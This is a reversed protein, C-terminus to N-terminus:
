AERKRKKGVMFLASMSATLLGLATLAENAADGTQPLQAKGPTQSKDTTTSNGTAVAPTTPQTSVTAPKPDATYIVTFAKVHSTATLGDLAAVEETNPTFGKIVPSKVAEFGDVAPTWDGYTVVGTTLDVTGPRTFTLSATADPAAPTGDAYVYHIVETITRTLYDKGSQDPWKPGDTDDPDVPEGPLGPDSPTVTKTGHSLNVTFTQAKAGFTINDPVNEDEEVFGNAVLAAVTTATPDAVTQDVHGILKQTTLDKGTTVDRYVITVQAENATYTVTVTSDETEPTVTASDVKATDPTYGTVEPSDVAKFTDSAPTWDTYTRSETVDDTVGTRTFTVHQTETEPAEAPGDVVYTITRTVTQTLKDDNSPIETTKHKLHIIVNDSDDVAITITGKVPQDANILEYKVPIQGTVDYDVARDVKGPVSVPQGVQAGDQDDDVFIIQASDDNATYTVTVKSDKTEPTVTVGEVKKTDPTYGTVEPSDVPVFTDSAPTWDTYTRDGTVRDTNGTRKFPVVQNEGEPAKAPGDVVYTITRTVTRTLEDDNSPISDSGHSFNVTFTQAKPSFTITGPVNEDEEVFGNAVLAAVTIATPDAVNQDVHGILKQTTLDEGTTVDHYVITVQAENATYTVTVKSDETEPTVPEDGITAQDPTYGTVEPSDVSKFTDSAPTWDTYTRDGTVRDTNGTRKFTVVQKKGEPAKASGDVVYDITRTVTQTLEDDDSPIADSGHSFNVTFTQAKPSFTITGPVNEDEEVFGNAVFAAVTTATPDAVTQDVHGILKQITLDKGTTVDHYVITAQAENATYTITVASDETDPTVTASDVKKTDPTYGTVEPSDVPKFTDAAPTWDTYSPRQTVDDTVGTRTFTVTQTKTAPAEAPGDVVYTITRTVTQTLEDDNSPIATTKHKFHVVYQKDPSFSTKQDFDQSVFEYGSNELNAKEQDVEDLHEVAEGQRWTISKSTGIEAGNADDDVFKVTASYAKKMWIVLPDQNQNSVLQQENGNPDEPVYGRQALDAITATYDDTQRVTITDGLKGRIDREALPAADQDDIDKYAVHVTGVANYTFQELSFGQKSHAEGTSGAVFFSVLNDAPIYDKIDEQWTKTDAPTDYLHWIDKQAPKTLTVTLMHTAADYHVHLQTYSSDIEQASNEDTEITIGNAGTNVFAGFKDGKGTPDSGFYQVKEKGVMTTDNANEGGNANVYTDAKWGFSNPLQAFGLSGGDRGVQDTNGTHFGVSVGDGDGIAITATMDFDYSLDIQTNLTLNGSQNKKDPTLVVDGTTSNIGGGSGQDNTNYQFNNAVDDGTLTVM